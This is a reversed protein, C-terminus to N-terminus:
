SHRAPSARRPSRRMKNRGAYARRQSRIFGDRQIGTRKQISKVNPSLRLLELAPGVVLSIREGGDVVTTKIEHGDTSDVRLEM